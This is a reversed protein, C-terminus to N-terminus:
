HNGYPGSTGLAGHNQTELPELPEPCNKKKNEEISFLTDFYLKTYCLVVYRLIVDYVHYLLIFYQVFNYDFIVYYEIMCDIVINCRIIHCLM